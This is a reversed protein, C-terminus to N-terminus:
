GRETCLVQACCPGEEWQGAGVGVGAGPVRVEGETKPYLHPHPQSPGSGQWKLRRSQGSTNEPRAGLAVRCHPIQAGMLVYHGSFGLQGCRQAEGEARWM